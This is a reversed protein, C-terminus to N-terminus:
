GDCGHRGSMAMPMAAPARTYSLSPLTVTVLCKERCEQCVLQFTARGDKIGVVRLSLQAPRFSRTPPRWLGDARLTFLESGCLICYATHVATPDIHV